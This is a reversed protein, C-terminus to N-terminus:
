PTPQDPTTSPLGEGPTVPIRWYFPERHGELISRDVRANWIARVENAPLTAALDRIQAMQAAGARWVSIDDSYDYTLDHSDVLQKFRELDTM